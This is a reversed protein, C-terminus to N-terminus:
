KLFKCLQYTYKSFFNWWFRVITIKAECRPVTSSWVVNGDQLICTITESGQTKVFGDDCHFSVSSGLLFRDGFRRGNIPIGPDHCENQGFAAVGLKNETTVITHIKGGTHMVKCECHVENALKIGM